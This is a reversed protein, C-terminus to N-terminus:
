DEKMNKIMDKACSMKENFFRKGKNFIGIVGAAALSFLTLAAYPHRKKRGTKNFFM